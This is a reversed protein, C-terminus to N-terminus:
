KTEKSMEKFDNGFDAPVGLEKDLDFMMAHAVNSIQTNAYNPKNCYDDFRRFFDDASMTTYQIDHILSYASVFGAIWHMDMVHSFSKSRSKNYETCTQGGAGIMSFGHTFKPPETPATEAMCTLSLLLLGSLSTKLKM